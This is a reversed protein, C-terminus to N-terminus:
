DALDRLSVHQHFPLVRDLASQWHAWDDPWLCDPRDWERVADRCAIVVREADGSNVARTLAARQRRVMKNLVRYDVAPTATERRESRRHARALVEQAETPLLELQGTDNTNM